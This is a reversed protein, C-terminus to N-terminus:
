GSSQLGFPTNFFTNDTVEDCATFWGDMVICFGFGVIGGMVLGSVDGVLSSSSSEM